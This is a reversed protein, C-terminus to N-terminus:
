GLAFTLLLALATTLVLTDGGARLYRDAVSAKRPSVSPIAWDAGAKGPARVCPTADTRPTSGEVTEITEISAITAPERRRSWDPLAVPVATVIETAAGAVDIGASAVAKVLRPAPPGM